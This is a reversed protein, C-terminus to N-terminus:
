NWQLRPLSSLTLLKLAACNGGVFSTAQDTDLDVKCLELTEDM